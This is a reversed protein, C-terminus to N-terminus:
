VICKTNIVHMTEKAIEIEEKSPIVIIPISNELHIFNIRNSKVNINKKQDIFVGLLSLKTITILRMLSSNEGIGGTFTIADLKGDMLTSYGAIYKALRHCFVDFSLKFKVNKYYNYTIERFDSTIENLGLLGSKNILIDEISKIDLKLNKYMFFIIAPDIDGSRNGMILGELPTLGMSTDVSLGDKIAAISCGNGLHCSIINLNNKPINLIQAVKNCIYQHSIGHAGYRRIHNKYFFKYPIGYLFSEAPLTQHFVTDFVGVNYKSLSPFNKKCFSVGLLNIPNHTPAFCSAEEIYKINKKNLFVATTIKNGGHVIRHGIGIINSTIEKYKFLIEQFLFDLGELHTIIKNFSYVCDSMYNHIKWVAKTHHLGIADIIGSLIKSYKVTDIISFKISSSGCNLVLILKQM